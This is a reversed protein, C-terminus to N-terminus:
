LSLFNETEQNEINVLIKLKIIKKKLKIIRFNKM